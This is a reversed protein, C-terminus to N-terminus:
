RNAELLGTIPEIIARGGPIDIARVVEETVPILYEEKGRRVVWIDHEGSFFVQAITGVQEGTQTQVKLGIVQYYYFESERLPPLLEEAVSVTAGRLAQAQSLSDIGQFKVLM